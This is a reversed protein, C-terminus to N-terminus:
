GFLLANLTSYTAASSNTDTGDSMEEASSVNWEPSQTRASVLLENTKEKFRASSLSTRLKWNSFTGPKGPTSKSSTVSKRDLM